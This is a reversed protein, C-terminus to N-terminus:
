GQLDTKPGNCETVKDPQCEVATQRAKGGGEGSWSEVRLGGEAALGRAEGRLQLRTKLTLM